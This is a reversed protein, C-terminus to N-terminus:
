EGAEMAAYLALAQRGHDTLADVAAAEGQMVGILGRAWLRNAVVEIESDQGALQPLGRLYVREEESLYFPHGPELPWVPRTM